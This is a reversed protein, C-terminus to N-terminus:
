ILDHSEEPFRKEQSEKESLAFVIDKWYGILGSMIQGERAERVEEGVVKERESKGAM